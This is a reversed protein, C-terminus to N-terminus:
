GSFFVSKSRLFLQARMGDIVQHLAFRLIPEEFRLESLRCWTRNFLQSHRHPNGDNYPHLSKSKPPRQNLYNSLCILTKSLLIAFEPAGSEQAVCFQQMVQADQDELEVNRPLPADSVANEYMKHIESSEDTTSPVLGNSADASTSFLTQTSNPFLQKRQDASFLTAICFAAINHKRFVAPAQPSSSDKTADRLREYTDHADHAEKFLGLTDQYMKALMKLVPSSNSHSADPNSNLIKLTDFAKRIKSDAVRAYEILQDNPGTGSLNQSSFISSCLLDFLVSYFTALNFLKSGNV